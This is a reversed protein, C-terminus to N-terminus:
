LGHRRDGLVILTVQEELAASFAEAVSVKGRGEVGVDLQVRDDQQAAVNENKTM